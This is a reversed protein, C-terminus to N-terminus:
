QCIIQSGQSRYLADGVVILTGFSLATVRNDLVDAEFTAQEAPVKTPILACTLTGGMWAVPRAM